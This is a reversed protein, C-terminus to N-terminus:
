SAASRARLEARRLLEALLTIDSLERIPDASGVEDLDFFKRLMGLRNRPVTEGREWNSVTRPGVGIAKALQGQTMQRAERERKIEDGNVALDDCSLKHFDVLAPAGQTGNRM